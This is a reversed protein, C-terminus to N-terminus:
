LLLTLIGTKLTSKGSSLNVNIVYYYTGSPVLNGSKSKGNWFGNNESTEFIIEGWRNFIKMNNMVFNVGEPRFVDNLGDENPTFVNPIYIFADKFVNIFDYYATDKCGLSDTAFLTVVYQGANEYNYSANFSTDTENNGFNWLYSIGNITNNNFNVLLPAEGFHNDIDFDANLESIIIDLTDQDAGCINSTSVIYQGSASITIQNNTESNNWLVNDINSLATLILTDYKCFINGAINQLIEVSPIPSKEILLTDPINCNGSITYIIQSIGNNLNEVSLINGNIIGSQNNVVNWIGGSIDAQLLVNNDGECLSSINNIINPKIFDIVNINTSANIVCNVSDNYFVQFLGIGSINSDFIGSNQNIANNANSSWNGGNPSASFNVIEELCIESNSPNINPNLSNLVLINATDSNSCIGSVTNIIQYNGANSPNFVGNPSIVNTNPFSSFVGNNSSITFPLQFLCLQSPASFSANPLNLVEIIVSDPTSCLANSNYIILHNGIGANTPNFVGNNSIVNASTSSWIGNAPNATLQIPNDNACVNNPALISAQNGTFINLILTDSENCMNNLTYVVEYNGANLGQPNFIGNNNIVNQNGLVSWIGGPINTQFIVNNGNQCVASDSSSIILNSNIPQILVSDKLTDGCIEIVNLYLYFDQNDNNSITYSTNLSNLNSFTGNGGQWFVNQYVGTVLVNFGIVEGICVTMPSAININVIEIPASCGDNNYTINGNWDRDARAGDRQATTGGIGGSQNTLLSRNYTMDDVCGNAGSVLLSTTRLEQGAPLNAVWNAFHGATNGACQYLIYITDNLNTFPNAAVDFNESTVVIVRAGAPLSSNNPPNIVFGCGTINNNIQNTKSLTTPNQCIGRWPNNPWSISINQIPIPASGVRLRIMENMGENVSCADVLISEIYLCKPPFQSYASFSIVFLLSILLTKRM